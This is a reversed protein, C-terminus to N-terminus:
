ERVRKIIVASVGVVAVLGGILLMTNDGIPPSCNGAGVCIDTGDTDTKPDETIIVCANDALGLLGTGADPCIIPNDPDEPNLILPNCQVELGKVDPVFGDPCSGGIPIICGNSKGAFLDDCSAPKSEGCNAPSAVQGDCYNDRYPQDCPFGGVGSGTDTCFGCIAGDSNTDTPFSSDLKCMGGNSTPNTKVTQCKNDSWTGGKAKCEEEVLNPLVEIIACKNDIWAYTTGSTSLAECAEKTKPISSVEDGGRNMKLNYWTFSFENDSGVIDLDAQTTAGTGSLSIRHEKVPTSPTNIVIDLYNDTNGSGIVKLLMTKTTGLPVTTASIGKEIDQATIVFTPLQIGTPHGSGSTLVLSTFSETKIPTFNWAVIKNDGCTKKTPSYDGVDCVGVRAELKLNIDQTSTNKHIEPDSMLFTPTLDIRSISQIKGNDLGTVDLPILIDFPSPDDRAEFVFSGGGVKHVDVQWLIEANLVQADDTTDDTTDGACKKEDTVWVECLVNATYKGTSCVGSDTYSASYWTKNEANCSTQTVPIAPTSDNTGGTGSSSDPCGDGDKVGNYVEPDNPCQDLQNIIGDDDTDALEPNLVDDNNVIKAYHWAVLNNPSIPIEYKVSSYGDWSVNMNGVVEFKQRSSYEDPVTPLRDEIESGYLSFYGLDKEGDGSAFNLSKTNLSKSVTNIFSGDPKESNVILSLQSSDINLSPQNSGAGCWMKMTVVYGALSNFNSDTIDLLPNGTLLSSEINKLVVGRTDIASAVHKLNCTIDPNINNGTDGTFDLPLPVTFSLENAVGIGANQFGTQTENYFFVAVAIIIISLFTYKINRSTKHKM